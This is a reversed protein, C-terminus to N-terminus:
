KPEWHQPKIEFWYHGGKTSKVWCSAWFLHNDHLASIIDENGSWGGTHLELKYVKKHWTSDRGTYLRFGWEPMRWISRVFAILGKSGRDVIDWERIKTLEEDSPYRESM